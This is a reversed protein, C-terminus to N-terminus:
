TASANAIQGFSINQMESAVTGVFQFAMDDPDILTQFASNSTKGEIDQQIIDPQELVLSRVPNGDQDWDVPMQDMQRVDVQERELVAGGKGLWFISLVAERNAWVEDDITARIGDDFLNQSIDSGEVMYTEFLKATVAQSEAGQGIPPVELSVLSGGGVFTQTGILPDDTITIQGRINLAINMTGSDFALTLADVFDVEGAALRALTDASYTKM